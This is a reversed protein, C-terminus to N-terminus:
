TVPRKAAKRRFIAVTLISSLGLTFVEFTIMSVILNRFGTRILMGDYGYEKFNSRIEVVRPISLSFHGVSHGRIGNRNPADDFYYSSPSLYLSTKTGDAQITMVYIPGVYGRSIPLKERSQIFFLVYYGGAKLRLTSVESRTQYV